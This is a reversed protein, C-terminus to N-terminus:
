GRTRRLAEAVGLPNGILDLWAVDRSQVQEMRTASREFQVRNGLGPILMVTM